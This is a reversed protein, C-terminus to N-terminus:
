EAERRYIRVPWAKEAEARDFDRGRWCLRNQADVGILAERLEAPYRNWYGTSSKRYEDLCHFTQVLEGLEVEVSNTAPPPTQTDTVPAEEKKCQEHGM